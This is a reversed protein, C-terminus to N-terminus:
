VELADSIFLGVHVTSKGSGIRPEPSLGDWSGGFAEGQVGNQWEGGRRDLAGGTRCSMFGDISREIEAWRSDLLLLTRARQLLYIFCPFSSM